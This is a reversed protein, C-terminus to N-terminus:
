QNNKKNLRLYRLTYALRLELTNIHQKYGNMVTNSENLVTWRKNEWYGKNAMNSLMMTYSIGLQLGAIEYALGLRLGWNFRHLPSDNFTDHHTLDTANGTTYSETWLVCPQHLNFDASAATHRLYNNHDARSHTNSNYLYMRDSDTNGNLKMQSKLSFNLVPGFNLQVHSVPGTKFRYSALIPVEIMTHSYEETYANQVEGRLYQYSTSPMTYITPLAFENKYSIHTFNVGATLYVNKYIRQDAFLGISYGSASKYSANEESTGLSYDLVSGVYDGGASASVFPVYYSASVGISFNSGSVLNSFGPIVDVPRKPAQSVLMSALLQNSSSYIHIYNERPSNNPVNKVTEVFISDTGIKVTKIWDPIEGGIKWESTNSFVKVKQVGGDAPFSIADRSLTLHEDGAGQRINVTTQQGNPLEIIIRDIREQNRDNPQVIIRITSDSKEVRCWSPVSAVDWNVNSEVSLQETTGNSPINLSTANLQLYPARGAQRVAITRIYSGSTVNLMTTREHTSNNPELCSLVFSHSDDSRTSFWDQQGEIQWGQAAIVDVLEEGGQYPIDIETRSLELSVQQESNIVARCKRINKKCSSVLNPDKKMAQEFLVIARRADNSNNHRLLECAQRHLEVGSTNNQAQMPLALGMLLAAAMTFLVKKHKM